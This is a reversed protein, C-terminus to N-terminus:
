WIKNIHQRKKGPLHGAFHRGLCLQGHVATTQVCHRRGIAHYRLTGLFFSQHLFISCQFQVDLMQWQNEYTLLNSYPMENAIM